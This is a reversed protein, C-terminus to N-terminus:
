LTKIKTKENLTAILSQDTKYKLQIHSNLKAVEPHEDLYAFISKLNFDPNVAVLAKHIINFMILDEEFDLTLRYPRVLEDPLKVMNIKFHEQNNM